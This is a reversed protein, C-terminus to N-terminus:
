AKVSGAAGIAKAAKGAKRRIREGLYRIGKGKYPEPPRISRIKSAINGVLIKDIGSVTIINESVSFSVGEETVKVPHTFGVFLTLNQDEVQARFGVGILELKKEFGESAGKIMNSIQARTLGYLPKTNLDNKKSQSVLVKGNSVQAKIGKPIKFMLEGKIGSVKIKDRDIAVSVGEKIVVPIKGIKSM